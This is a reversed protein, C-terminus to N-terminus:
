GEDETPVYPKLADPHFIGTELKKGSFWSTRVNGSAIHNVTMPAGGSILQVVDGSKYSNTPM